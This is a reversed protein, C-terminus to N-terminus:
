PGDSIGKLFCMFQAGDVDRADRSAGEGITRFNDVYRLLSVKTLARPRYGNWPERGWDLELELQDSDPHSVLDKARGSRTMM